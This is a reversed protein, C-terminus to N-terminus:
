GNNYTVYDHLWTVLAYKTGDVVPHAIHAYAYNAPFLYLSGAKPKIKLDFHVFELEGGEYNDNLYLIPSVSRRTETTGDYHAKYEEGTQYKLLQYSEVHYTEDIDFITNYSQSASMIALYFENNLQRFFENKHGAEDVRLYSNTRKQNQDASVTPAPLFEIFSDESETNATINKIIESCNTWVNEYEAIAGAYIKTPELKPPAIYM